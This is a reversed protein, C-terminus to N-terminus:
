LNKSERKFPSPHLEFSCHLANDARQKITLEFVIEVFLPYSVVVIENKRVENRDQSEFNETRSM